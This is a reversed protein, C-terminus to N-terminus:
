IKVFGASADTQIHVAAASCGYSSVPLAHTPFRHVHRSFEGTGSITNRLWQTLQALTQHSRQHLMRADTLKGLPKDDCHQEDATRNSETRSDTQHSHDKSSTASDFPCGAPSETFPIIPGLTFLINEAKIDRHVINNEHLHNVAAIVQAFIIKADPEEFCGNKLIFTHLDGGSAYEMVM